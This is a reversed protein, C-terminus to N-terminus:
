YHNGNNRIIQEIKRKERESLGSATVKLNYFIPVKYEHIVNQDTAMIDSVMNKKWVDEIWSKKM